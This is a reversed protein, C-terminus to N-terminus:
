KKIEAFKAQRDIGLVYYPDNTMKMDLTINRKNQWYLLKSQTLCRQQMGNVINM